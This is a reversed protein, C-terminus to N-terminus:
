FLCLHLSRGWSHEWPGGVGLGPLLSVDLPTAKAMGLSGEGICWTSQINFLGLCSLDVCHGWAEARFSHTNERPHFPMFCETPRGESVRVAKELSPQATERNKSKERGM